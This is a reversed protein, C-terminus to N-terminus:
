EPSKQNLQLSLIETQKKRRAQEVLKLLRPGHSNRLAKFFAVIILFVAINTDTTGNGYGFVVISSGTV